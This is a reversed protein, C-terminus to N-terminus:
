KSQIADLTNTLIAIQKDTPDAEQIRAALEAAKEMASQYKLVGLRSPLRPCLMHFLPIKFAKAIAEISAITASVEARRIRGVTSTTVGTTKLLLKQSGVDPFREMLNNLNQALVKSAQM